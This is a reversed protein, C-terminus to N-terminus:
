VSSSQGTVLNRMLTARYFRLESMQSLNESQIFINCTKVQRLSDTLSLTYQEYPVLAQSTEANNLLYMPSQLVTPWQLSLHQYTRAIYPVASTNSDQNCTQQNVAM